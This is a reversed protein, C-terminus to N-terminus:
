AHQLPGTRPLAEIRRLALAQLVAIGGGAVAQVLVFALGLGNPVVWGSALLLVSDAAWLLNVGVVTRVAWRPAVTRAACWGVLGAWPLLVLGAGRLLAAPLAFTEALPGAAVALALGSALCMAADVALLTRLSISMM